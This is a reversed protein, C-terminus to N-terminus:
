PRYIPSASFPPKSCDVEGGIVMSTEGISTKVISCYQAYNSVQKENRSEIEDRSVNDWIDPITYLTEFKFGEFPRKVALCPFPITLRRVTFRIISLCDRHTARGPIGSPRPFRIKM